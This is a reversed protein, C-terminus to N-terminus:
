NMYQFDILNVSIMKGHTNKRNNPLLGAEDCTIELADYKLAGIKHALLSCTQALKQLDVISKTLLIVSLSRLAFAPAIIDSIIFDRLSFSVM